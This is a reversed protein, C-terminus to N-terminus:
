LTRSADYTERRAEKKLKRRHYRNETPQSETSQSHPNVESAEQPVPIPKAEYHAAPTPKATTTPQANAKSQKQLSRLTKISKDFLRTAATEYRMLLKLRADSECDFGEAHDARLRAMKAAANAQEVELQAIEKLILARAVQTTAFPNQTELVADRLLKPRGLLDLGRHSAVNTWFTKGSEPIAVLLLKWETLLWDRGAVSCRLQSAVCQPDRKLSKGLSDVEAKRASVWDFGPDAAVDMLATRRQRNAVQCQEVRLSAEVAQLTHYKQFFNEPALTPEWQEYRTEVQGAREPSAVVSATLGHTLGNMRSREKGEETKPGTSHAANRRNADVQAQTAM